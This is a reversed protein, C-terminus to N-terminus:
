AQLGMELRVQEKAIRDAEALAQELQRSAEPDDPMQAIVAELENIWRDIGEPSDWDPAVEAPQVWVERGEQWSEPLPELPEIYGNKVVARIM